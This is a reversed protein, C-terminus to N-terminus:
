VRRTSTRQHDLQACSHCELRTLVGLHPASALSMAAAAAPLSPALAADAAVVVVVFVQSQTCARQWATLALLGQSCFLLLVM